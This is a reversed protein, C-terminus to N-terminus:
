LVIDLTAVLRQFIEDKNESNKKQNKFTFMKPDLKLKFKLKHYFFKNLQMFVNFLYQLAELFTTKM